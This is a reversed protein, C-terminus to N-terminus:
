IYTKVCCFIDSEEGENYAYMPPMMVKESWTLDRRMKYTFAHPAEIGHRNMFANYLDIRLPALWKGFDRVHEITEVVLEEGRAAIRPQMIEHM